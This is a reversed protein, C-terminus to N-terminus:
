NVVTQKDTVMDDSGVEVVVPYGSPDNADGPTGKGDNPDDDKPAEFLPIHAKLTIDVALITLNKADTQINMAPADTSEIQVPWDLNQGAFTYRADFRRHPMEDIYLLFQSAISKATPEDQAFIAIQARVDGDITRVKFYREKVDDPLTIDVLESVQRTYDRGTPIYDKAMAVIVVPLKPPQTAADDTDNKYWAALMDEAADVMREPAWVMSKALGRAVYEQLSKTTPVISEYFGTMYQGFATKVPQLM